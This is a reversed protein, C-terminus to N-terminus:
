STAVTESTDEAQKRTLVTALWDRFIHLLLATAGLSAILFILFYADNYALVYAQRDAEQMVLTVAQAKRLGADSIQSALGAARAAIASATMGSTATLQESLVQLHVAHRNNIFTTFLGSGLVGGISQTTLFVIVFSLLYQPGRALASSLGALLAPPLFLMGAMGIMAQSIYMQEPRTDVTSQSDMFAGGMILFLAVLHFWKVRELKIWGVCALGGILSAICIIAFLGSLQSPALGLAQFMRPAGSSQESLILRFLFLTATLHLIAPSMLWRIDLLQAKRNLEIVVLAALSIVSAVLLWGIWPADTWYHIPGQIFAIIIGGFGIGILMVSLFDLPQIVKERPMPRLKLTYVLALSVLALSLATLHLWTLGGDGILAPSIVYSLSPGTMIVALAIPLGLRMKWAAALPELMYLFALSSIPAAAVGSLFQVTVASRFDTVWIAAFSMIVYVVIAIEAFRRLGYQNRIKILLLPLVARPIQYAAALWSAETTTISLDGAIQALNSTVFGQGLGQTLGLVVAAGMYLLARPLPLAPLPAPPSPVVPKGGVEEKKEDADSM